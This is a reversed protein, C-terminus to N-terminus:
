KSTLDVGRKVLAFAYTGEDMEAVSTYVGVIEGGVIVDDGAQTDPACVVVALSRPARSGRSDMREVLEQGPYCGKTFSVAVDLIPTEAPIMEPLVDVGLLPWQARLREAHFMEPTGEVIVSPMGAGSAFIDYASGDMRWAPIGGSLTTERLGRIARWTQTTLELEADVRIKFRSLRALTADGFGPETDIVFRDLGARTVRVISIIKGTPELVFSNRSDGAEMSAIDQSMQSHLFTAADAGTVTIVDRVLPVWFASQM